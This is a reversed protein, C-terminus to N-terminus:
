KISSCVCHIMLVAYKNVNFYLVTQIIEASDNCHSDWKTQTCAQENVLDQWKMFKPKNERKVSPWNYPIGSHSNWIIASGLHCLIFPSFNAINKEM